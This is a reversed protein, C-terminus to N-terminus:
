KNGRAWDAYSCGPEWTLRTMPPECYDCEEFTHTIEEDSEFADPDMLEFKHRECACRDGRKYNPATM